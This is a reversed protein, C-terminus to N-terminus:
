TNASCLVLLLTRILYCQPANRCGSNSHFLLSYRVIDPQTNAIRTRWMTMRSRGREVNNKWMKEYVARNEFFFVSYLITKKNERRIKDSVNRMVLFFSCSLIFSTCQDELSTSM